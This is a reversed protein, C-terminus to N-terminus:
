RAFAMAAIIGVVRLAMIALVIYAAIAVGRTHPRLPLGYDNEGKTGPFLCLALSFVAVLSLALAIATKGYIPSLGAGIAIPLFVLALSWWGSRNFDHLRRIILMFFFATFFVRVFGPWIPISGLLNALGGWLFYRTRGLRGKCSFIRVEDEFDPSYLPTEAGTEREPLIRAPSIIAAIPKQPPEVAAQALGSAAQATEPRHGPAAQQGRAQEQAAPEDEVLALKPKAPVPPPELEMEMEMQALAGAEKVRALYADAQAKPLNRKMTVRQGSFLPALKAADCQFLQALNAEVADRALGPALMGDFVIRYRIETGTPM